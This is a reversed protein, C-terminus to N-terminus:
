STPQSRRVFEEIRRWLERADLAQWGPVVADLNVRLGMDVFPILLSIGPGDLRHLRGLRFVILREPDRTIRLNSIAGAVLVVVLLRISLPGRFM